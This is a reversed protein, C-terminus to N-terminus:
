GHDEIIFHDLNLEFIYNAIYSVVIGLAENRWILINIKIYCIILIINIVTLLYMVM